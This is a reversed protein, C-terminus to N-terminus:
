GVKLGVKGILRLNYSGQCARAEQIYIYLYINKTKHKAKTKQKTKNQKTQKKIQIKPTINHIIFDTTSRVTFKVSSEEFDWNSNWTPIEFEM